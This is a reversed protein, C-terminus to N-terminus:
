VIWSRKAHRMKTFALGDETVVAIRSDLAVGLIKQGNPNQLGVIDGAQTYNVDNSQLYSDMLAWVDEFGFTKIGSEDDHYEGRKRFIETLKPSKSISSEVLSAFIICDHQGVKLPYDRIKDIIARIVGQWDDVRNMAPRM